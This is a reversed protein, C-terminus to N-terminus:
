GFFEDVEYQNAEFIDIEAIRGSEVRYVNVRTFELRQGSRIVAERLVLAVRSGSVLRDLVEVEASATSTRDLLGQITAVVAARGAHVGALAGRGPLRMVVDDAYFEWAAEPDGREWAAAYEAIVEVADLGDGPSRRDPSGSSM